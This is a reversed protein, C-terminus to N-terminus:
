FNASEIIEDLKKQEEIAQAVLAEIQKPDM